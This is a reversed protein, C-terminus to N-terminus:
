RIRKRNLANIQSTLFNQKRKLESLVNDLETFQKPYIKQVSNLHTQITEARSQLHNLQTNLGNIENKM